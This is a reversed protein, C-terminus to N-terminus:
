SLTSRCPIVDIALMHLGETYTTRVKSWVQVTLKNCMDKSTTKRPKNLALTFPDSIFIVPFVQIEGLCWCIQTIKFCTRVLPWVDESTISRADRVYMSNYLLINQVSVHLGDFQNKNNIKQKNTQQKNNTTKQKNSNNNNSTTTITTTATATTQLMCTTCVNSFNFIGLAPNFVFRVLVFLLCQIFPVVGAYKSIRCNFIVTIM